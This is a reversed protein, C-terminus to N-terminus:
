ESIGWADALQSRSLMLAGDGAPGPDALIRAMAERQGAERRLRRVDATIGNAGSRVAEQEESILGDALYRANSDNLPSGNM